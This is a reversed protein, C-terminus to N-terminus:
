VLRLDRTHRRKKRWFLLLAVLFLLVTTVVLAAIGGGVSAGIINHDPPTQTPLPQNGSKSHKITAAVSEGPKKVGGSSCCDNPLNLPAIIMSTNDCVPLDLGLIDFKPPRIRNKIKKWYDSCLDDVIYQCTDPCLFQPVQISSSNGCPLFYHVCLAKTIADSCQPSFSHSTFLWAIYTRLLTHSMRTFPVYVYDVGHRFMSDCPIPLSSNMQYPYCNGNKRCYLVRISYNYNYKTCCCANTWSVSFKSAIGWRGCCWMLCNFRFARFIYLNLQIIHM